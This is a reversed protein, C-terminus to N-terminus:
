GGGARASALLAGEGARQALGQQLEFAGEREDEEGLVADDDRAVRVAEAREGHALHFDGASALAVDEGGFGAGEVQDAGDVQVIDLGALHDEDAGLAHRALAPSGLLRARLADELM